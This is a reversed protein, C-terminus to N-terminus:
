RILSEGYPGSFGPGQVGLMIAKDKGCKFGRAHNDAIQVALENANPNARGDVYGVHCVGGPGLRTVVLVQGSFSNSDKDLTTTNWRLITAFPRLKGGPLREIRWEITKGESNFLALTQQFARENAANPGFSVYSRQDGAGIFVAIGGYGSCRWTGYDEVERGPKHRCKKLDLPTYAREVAGNPASAPQAAAHSVLALSAALILGSLVISRMAM